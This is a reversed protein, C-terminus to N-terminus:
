TFLKRAKELDQQTDIECWKGNIIIPRVHYGSDILEQLMDTLYAKKLSPAKHFPGKHTKLLKQYNEVIIKSGKESLIMPGLFEGITGGFSKKQINKQICIIKGDKIM